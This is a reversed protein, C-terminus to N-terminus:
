KYLLAINQGKQYPSEGLLTVSGGQLLGQTEFNLQSVKCQERNETRCQYVTCAKSLFVGLSVCACNRVQPM